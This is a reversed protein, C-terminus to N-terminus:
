NERPSWDDTAPRYGPISGRSDLKVKTRDRQGSVRREPALHAYGGSVARVCWMHGSRVNEWVQGVETAPKEARKTASPSAPVRRDVMAERRVSWGSKALLEAHRACAGRPGSTTEVIGVVVGIEPGCRPHSCPGAWISRERAVIGGGLRPLGSNAM